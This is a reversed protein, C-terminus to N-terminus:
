LVFRLSLCHHSYSYFMAILVFRYLNAIFPLQHTYMDTMFDSLPGEGDFTAFHCDIGQKDLVNKSLRYSYKSIGYEDLSGFITPKTTDPLDYNYNTSNNTFNRIQYFKEIWNINTGNVIASILNNRFTENYKLVKPVVSIPMSEVLYQPIFWGSEGYAGSTGADYVTGADFYDSADVTYKYM